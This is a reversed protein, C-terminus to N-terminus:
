SQNNMKEMMKEMFDTLWADFARVLEQKFDRKRGRPVPVPIEDDEEDLYEKLSKRPKTITCPGASKQAVNKPEEVLVLKEKRLTDLDCMDYKKVPWRMQIQDRLWDYAEEETDFGHHWFNDLSSASSSNYSWNPSMCYGNDGVTAYIKHKQSSM